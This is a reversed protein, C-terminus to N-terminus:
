IELTDSMTATGDPLAVQPSLRKISSRRSPRPNAEPAHGGLATVLGRLKTVRYLGSANLLDTSLLLLHAAHWPTRTHFAVILSAIKEDPSLDSWINVRQTFEELLLPDIEESTIQPYLPMLCLVRAANERIIPDDNRLWLLLLSKMLTPRGFAVAHPAGAEVKKLRKKGLKHLAMCGAIQEATEKSSLLPTLLDVIEKFHESQFEPSARLALAGECRRVPDGSACLAKLEDWVPNTSSQEITLLVTEGLVGALQGRQSQRSFYAAAAEERLLPGYKSSGLLAREAIWYEPRLLLARIASRITDPPVQVEDALCKALTATVLRHLGASCCIAVLTQILPEAKRGALVAALPIVERWKEDTFHGEVVSVLTDTDARAPYWGELIAKATLYEQFTLHRFEYFETLTGDVVDHGSMMLLSSRNEIREIFEAVGIRAFGLEAALDERAKYLLRILEARSIKQDGSQMMAFAIYCLQPLAEDQEIPEHGEVNWTMLLVEVAKGYLVSRKTPLQGVWRKVLLLATLLLPNIALRKIRDNDCITNALKRADAIVEPRDGLVERHWSITLKIIDEASLDALDAQICISALLGAIHRFGSKRSTIVINVHPYVALFTRLGRVFAARDGVNTIEDLGDVLLVAEGVRLAELLHARFASAGDSVLSRAAVTDLLEPFPSRAKERLERCRLFIPLWNRDPLRDDALHRREPDSYAIAIRKLLTSKGGGPSALIALRNHANLLDGFQQRRGTTRRGSRKRPAPSDAGPEVIVHLPVFLNELRLKLAGVDADAPLGDLMIFGCEARLYEQYRTLDAALKEQEENAAIVNPNLCTM